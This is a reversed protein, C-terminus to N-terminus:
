KSIISKTYLSLRYVGKYARSVSPLVLHRTFALNSPTTSYRQAAPPLMAPKISRLSTLM